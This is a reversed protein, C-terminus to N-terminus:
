ERTKLVRVLDLRHMRRALLLTTATTAAMVVLVGQAATAARMGFPITYLDNSFQMMLLWALGVGLGCGLPLAVLTLVALSGLLMYAVESRRYGLVRLSALDRARESLMVRGANYVVGFVIMVAFGTNFLTVMGMNESVTARIGRIAATRPAVSAIMPMDKLRAYLADFQLPDVALLAGSVVDGELMLRNLGQMSLYAPTGLASEVIGTVPLRVHPKRGEAIEIDIMAGRELGLKRALSASALVGLGPATIARGDLDVIRSLDAGALAGSLAQREVRPGIRLRATVARAPEVRRVGPLRALEFLARADRPEVFSVTLDQREARDFALDIMRDINDTSSASAIYLALACAIGFISLSSRLPQRTLDRLIMRTPEDLQRVAILARAVLGGYSPPMPPRMAEAPPLRAARRVAAYSGLLVAALAVLAAIAYIDAGARFHLFPFVFFAQYMRALGRGLWAGLAFGLAIGAVSLLLALQAYHLIIAGDRYGFAKLLGITERETDVLRGLVINLLFAAIGLFIPPLFSTMTRLQDIENVVFRDSIQQGRDYAAVGGYRELLMDLRRIVEGSDAGRQLAIVVEDFAGDLDLIGALPRRNMWIIGYRHNDPFIEGPAIAYVYEPSLVVGVIRLRLLKGHVTAALTSGPALRAADAFQANVLVEDARAPDLWRGNRLFLANLRPTSNDPLSHVRASAPEAVGPLDITAAATLRSEAVAVGPLARIQTMLGEPARKVPAYVSAFRYRDYYADRTDEISRMMGASMVAMGVGAAIVLAIAVAQARLRWLDRWLKIGLPSLRVWAPRTV